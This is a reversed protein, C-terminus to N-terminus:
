QDMMNKAFKKQAIDLVHNIDTDEYTIIDGGCWSESEEELEEGTILRGGRKLYEFGDAVAGIIMVLRKIANRIGIKICNIEEELYIEGVEISRLSKGVTVIFKDKDCYCTPPMEFFPVYRNYLPRQVFFYFIPNLVCRNRELGDFDKIKFSRKDGYHIVRDARIYTRGRVTKIAEMVRKYTYLNPKTIVDKFISEYEKRAERRYMKDLYRIYENKASMEREKSM